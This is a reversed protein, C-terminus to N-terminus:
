KIEKVMAVNNFSISAELKDDNRPHIEFNDADKIMNQFAPIDFVSIEDTVIWIAMGSKSIANAHLSIDAQPNEGIIFSRIAKYAKEVQAYRLENLVYKIKGAQEKEMREKCLRAFEQMNEGMFTFENTKNM